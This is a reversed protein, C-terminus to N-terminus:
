SPRRSLLRYCGVGAILLGILSNAGDMFDVGRVVVAHAVSVSLMAAGFILALLAEGTKAARPSRETGGFLMATYIISLFAGAFISGAFLRDGKAYFLSGILFLALIVLKTRRKKGGEQLEM